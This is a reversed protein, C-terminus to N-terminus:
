KKLKVNDNVDDKKKMIWGFPMMVLGLINYNIQKMNERMSKGNFPSFRWFNIYARGKGITSVYNNEALEKYLLTAYTPSNRRNRISNQSLGGPLYECIYIVEDVYLLRSGYKSTRHWMLGEACFKEGEFEDFKCEKLVSTKFVEAMDGKIKYKTIRETPNAIFSKSGNPFEGGVKKGNEFAKQFVFGDLNIHKKNQIYETITEVAHKALYDDSDVVLFWKGKALDLGKNIAIHKGRNSQKFYSMNLKNEEILGQIIKGTNDTSGDDVIVWEFNKNTQNVLSDYLRILLTERNFAPTFITILQENM